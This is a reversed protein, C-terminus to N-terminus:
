LGYSERSHLKAIELLGKFNSYRPNLPVRRLAMNQDLICWDVEQPCRNEIAFEFIEEVPRLTRFAEYKSCLYCVISENSPVAEAMCGEWGNARVHELMRNYICEQWPWGEVGSKWVTKQAMMRPVLPITRVFKHTVFCCFMSIAINVNTKSIAHFVVHDRENSLLGEIATKSFSFKWTLHLNANEEILAIMLLKHARPLTKRNCVALDRFLRHPNLVDERIFRRVTNVLMSSAVGLANTRFKDLMDRYDTVESALVNEIDTFRSRNKTETSVVGVVLATIPRLAKVVPVRDVQSVSISNCPRYSIYDALSDCKLKAKVSQVLAQHESTDFSELDRLHNM